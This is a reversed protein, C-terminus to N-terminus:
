LSRLQGRVNFITDAANYTLTTHANEGPIAWPKSPDYEMVFLAATTQM